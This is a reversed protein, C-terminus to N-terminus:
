PGHCERPSTATLGDCALVLGHESYRQWTSDGAVLVKTLLRNQPNVAQALCWVVAYFARASASLAM